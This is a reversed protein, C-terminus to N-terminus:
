VQEEEVFADDDAAMSPRGAVAAAAESSGRAMPSGLARSASEMMCAWMVAPPAHAALGDIGVIELVIQPNIKGVRLTEHLVKAKLQTPLYFALVEPSVHKFLDEPDLMGCELGAAMAGQVFKRKAETTKSGQAGIGGRECAGSICSWLINHPIYQALTEPRLVSVILDPTMAGRAMTEQFLVAMVEPPLCESLVDPTAYAVIDPAEFVHSELGLELLRTLWRTRDAGKGERKEKPM